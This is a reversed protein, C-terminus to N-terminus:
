TNNMKLFVFCKHTIALLFYIYFCIYIYTWEHGVWIGIDSCIGHPDSPQWTMLGNCKNARSHFWLHANNTDWCSIWGLNRYGLLCTGFCLVLITSKSLGSVPILKMFFQLKIMEIAWWCLSQYFHSYYKNICDNWHGQHFSNPVLSTLAIRWTRKTMYIWSSISIVWDKQLAPYVHFEWKETKETALM